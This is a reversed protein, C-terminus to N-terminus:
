PRSIAMWESTSGLRRPPITTRTPSSTMSPEVRPLSSRRRVSMAAWAALYFVVHQFFSGLAPLVHRLQRDGGILDTARYRVVGRAVGRLGGTLLDAHHSRSCITNGLNGPQWTAHRVLQELERVADDADCLVELGIGDTDHHQTIKLGKGLAVFDLPRALNERDRDALVEEAAHDVGQALRNVAQAGDLGVFLTGQLELGCAHEVALRDLLRQLGAELRDVGHRRDAAALTLEDNAVALGALGCDADVGDEVLLFEPLGTVRRLLHAADVDGDALLAGGDGTHALSQLVVACQLVGGDHRSRCGVGCAELPQCREGAGGQALVPHVLALVDQHDVIVQGLLGLCVTGDGQQQAARRAALCVRAIHEVQM